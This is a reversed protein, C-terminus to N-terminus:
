KLPLEGAPAGRLTWLASVPGECRTVFGLLDPSAYVPVTSPTGSGTVSSNVTTTIRGFTASSISAPRPCVPFQARNFLNFASALSSWRHANRSGSDGKGLSIDAQWIGPARFLNRGANGFTGNAPVAFYAELNIWDAVTAGAAPILSASPLDFGAAANAYQRGTGRQRLPGGNRQRSHRHLATAILSLQWGGLVSQAVGRQTLYKSIADSRFSTFRTPTSRIGCTRIATRTIAAAASPSRRSLRSGAAAPRVGDNLSHGWM